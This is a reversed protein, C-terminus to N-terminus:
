TPSIQRNTGRLTLDADRGRKGTRRGDVASGRISTRYLKPGEGIADVMCLLWWARSRRAAQAGNMTATMSAVRVLDGAIWAAGEAM